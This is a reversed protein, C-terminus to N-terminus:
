VGSFAFGVARRVIFRCFPGHRSGDVEQVAWVEVQEALTLRINVASLGKGINLDCDSLGGLIDVDGKELGVNLSLNDIGYLSSVSDAGNDDDVRRGICVCRDGNM